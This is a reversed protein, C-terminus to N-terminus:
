APDVDIQILTSRYAKEGQIKLIIEKLAKKVLGPSVSKRSLKLLFEQIYFNRIRPVLAPVPGLVMDGFHSKLERSMVLCSNNLLSSDKNKCIIRILRTFPPYHFQEREQIEANYLGQYDNKQIFSLIPHYPSYTQIVVYGQKSRRGARGSVQTLIQYGKEFARFDPFNLIQDANMVGILQVRGFDLGKSVMQTGILVDIRNEELDSVIKLHGNKGRTSDQDMRGIRLQPYLIQLEEEIKETGLGQDQINPDQCVPCISPIETKYGCYHCHLRHTSKHLTLSVDCHICKPIYGCSKCLIFPSYGRRNQFLIIQDKEDLTRELHRLLPTGFQFKLTKEKREQSLDSIEIIPMNVGGYRENLHVMGYKGNLANYYTEISPTASGLLIKIGWKSGLYIASDRANYRPAPDMQKFSSDHEEDIIIFGLDPFPLFLSSRAGIVVRFKGNIVNEWTEVRENENFRSHYIGVKEGFQKRLRDVLQTTLAIEPLLYLVQKNMGLFDEILRIYVQTKGSSTIGHLLVVSEEQFKQKIEQYIEIQRTSLSYAEPKEQTHFDLRSVRKEYPIFIGKKILINLTSASQESTKLLEAKTIEKSHHGGLAYFAMILALQSPKKEYETFLGKKQDSEDFEPSLRIFSQKKPKFGKLMEERVLIRKKSILSKVLNHVQKIETLKSLEELRVEGQNQIIGLIIGEKESLNQDSDEYFDNIVLYNENELKLGSPLAAKMVEGLHCFYYDSIWEWFDMHQTQIIPESDLMSQIYRAEYLTPAQNHIKFVLGSYVKNKGFPVVVRKGPIMEEKLEDPVRYTFTNGVALPLIIEAFLTDKNEM